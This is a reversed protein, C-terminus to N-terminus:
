DERTAYSVLRYVTDGSQLHVRREPRLELEGFLVVKEGHDGIRVLSMERRLAKALVRNKRGREASIELDPKQIRPDFGPIRQARLYLGPKGAELRIGGPMATAREVLDSTPEVLEERRYSAISYAGLASLRAVVVTPPRYDTLEGSARKAPKPVPIGDLEEWLAIPQLRGERLSILEGDNTERAVQVAGDKGLYVTESTARRGGVHPGLLSVWVFPVPSSDEGREEAEIPPVDQEEANTCGYSSLLAFATGIKLARASEISLAVRTV